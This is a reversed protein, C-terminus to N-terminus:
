STKSECQRGATRRALAASHDLDQILNSVQKFGGLTKRNRKPYFKLGQWRHGAGQSSKHEESRVM